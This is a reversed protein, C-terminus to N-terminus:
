DNIRQVLLIFTLISTAQALSDGLVEGWDIPERDERERQENVPKYPVTVIAGPTVKPTVRFFLINTTQKIRGNPYLVSVRGRDARKSFGGGYDEIYEGARLNGQYALVVEGNAVVEDLYIEEADIAGRLTVLDNIQPVLIEDGPKLVINNVSNRNRLVEDLAIVVYGIGDQRRLLTAGAPFGEESIGGARQVLDGLREDDKLLPYPGPFAVEGRIVVTEQLKFDQVERVVIYDYPALQFDGGSVIELQENVELTAAVVQTPNNDRIIVRYVEIRNSAAGFRLGGALRLVDQLQLSPGYVFQGPTRVAGAVQVTARDTFNFISFIQLQDNPRLVINEAGGPDAIAARFDVTLYEPRAPDDPNERLIYGESIADRRLGGALEIADAVRLTGSADFPFNELTDRIAGYVSFTFNDVYNRQSLILLRDEPELVLDAETGRGALAATLDVSQIAVTGDNNKRTLYARDLRADRRLTGREVLSSLRDGPAFAYQGDFEVAGTLTVFNRVENDVARIVVRDGKQLTFDRGSRQLEALDVDLITTADNTVRFVQVNDAYATATLGGAYAVLAKLNEGEILEYKFPRNVQGQINVVRDAVPVYIFDGTNLYLDASTNGNILFDYFDVERAGGGTRNIRIKRLSGKDSPGGAAALANFANNIASITYSGSQIVEGFINVDITRAYNVTLAFEGRNFRLRQSLRRVLLERAQALELGGIVIRGIQDINIAGDAGIQYTGSFNSVGFVQITLEDGAGFVYDEGPRVQDAQRYVRLVNERYLQQGFLRAPPLSDYLQETLEEAIAEEATAGGEIATEINDIPDGSDDPVRSRRPRRPDPAPATPQSVTPPPPTQPASLNAARVEDELEQIIREVELAQDSTIRDYDIGNEALRTRIQEETLGRRALEADIQQQSPQLVENIQASLPNLSALFCLSLFFRLMLPAFHPM